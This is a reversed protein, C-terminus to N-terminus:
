RLYPLFNSAVPIYILDPRIKHILKRLNYINKVALYANTFDLKSLNNLDRHDSIDLHTIEFENKLKSNLLDSFYISSGHYPPPVSGILIIKKKETM